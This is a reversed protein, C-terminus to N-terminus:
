SMLLHCWDTVKITGEMITILGNETYIIIIHISIIYIQYM